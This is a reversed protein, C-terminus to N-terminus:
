TSREDRGLKAIAEGAHVLLRDGVLADVLAVSVTETRGGIEILALNDSLVEMVRVEIAADGCTICGPVQRESTAHVDSDKMMESLSARRNDFFGHVLECLSHCRRRWAATQAPRVTIV